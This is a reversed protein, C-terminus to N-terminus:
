TKHLAIDSAASVAKVFRDVMGSFSYENKITSLANAGMELRKKPNNGLEEIKLALDQADGKKFLLGNSQNELAFFEPPQDRLSGHTIVPLGYAFSHFISLGIAGPYVLAVASLFWPALEAQNYISGLWYVAKSIGLEETHRMLREKQPGDGIVVLYYRRRKKQLISLAEIAVNLEPKSTLRGCYLLHKEGVLGKEKLFQEVHKSSWLGKELEIETTALTNNAAFLRSQAIGETKLEDVERDSYTLVVDPVRLLQRRMRVAWLKSGPYHWIGWWVIGLYRRKAKLILPYNSLYRPNGCIVLVDGKEYHLSIHLDSQWSLKGKFFSNFVVPHFPFEFEQEPTNPSGPASM